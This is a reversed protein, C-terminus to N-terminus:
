SSPLAEIFRQAYQRMMTRAMGLNADKAIAMGQFHDADLELLLIYVEDTTILIDETSDREMGLLELARRNSKIVESYSASATEADFDPDVSTGGISMGMSLDIIDTAIFGPVDEQFEDILESLSPMFLNPSKLSFSSRNWYEIGLFNNGTELAVLFANVALDLTCLSWERASSNSPLSFQEAVNV